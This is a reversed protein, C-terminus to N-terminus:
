VMRKHKTNRTSNGSQKKCTPTHNQSIPRKEQQNEQEISELIKKSSYSLTQKWTTKKSMERQYYKVNKEERKLDFEEIKLGNSCTLPRRIGIDIGVAEFSHELPAHKTNINIIGTYIGNEHKITINNIKSEHIKKNINKAPKSNSKAM